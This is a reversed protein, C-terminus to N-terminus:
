RTTGEWRRGTQIRLGGMLTFHTMLPVEDLFLAQLGWRASVFPSVALPREPNGRYGLTLSLPILLSPRGWDTAQVYRGDTLTLTKRRWVYHLYGAGLGLGAHVGGPLNRGIRIEPVLSAGTMWWRDRFFAVSVAVSVTWGKGSNLAREAGATAAPDFGWTVPGPYWPVTFAHTGISAQYSWRSQGVLPIAWAVGFLAIAACRRGCRVWGRRARGAGGSRRQQVM